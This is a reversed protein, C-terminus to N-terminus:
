QMIMERASNYCTVSTFDFLGLLFIIILQQKLIELLEKYNKKDEEDVEDSDGEEVREKEKEYKIKKREHVNRM